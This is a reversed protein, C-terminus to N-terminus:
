CRLSDRQTPVGGRGGTGPFRVAWFHAGRRLEATARPLIERNGSELEARPLAALEDPLDGRNRKGRAEMRVGIAGGQHGGKALQQSLSRVKVPPGGFELFPFYTQTVNLIRM